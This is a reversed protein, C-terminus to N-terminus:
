QAKLENLIPDCNAYLAFDPDDPLAADIMAIAEEELSRGTAAPDASATPADSNAAVGGANYSAGTVSPDEDYTLRLKVPLEDQYSAYYAVLMPISPFSNRLGQPSSISIALTSVHYVISGIYCLFLREVRYTPIFGLILDILFFSANFKCCMTMTM